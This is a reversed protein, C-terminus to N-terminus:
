DPPENMDPVIDVPVSSGSAAHAFNEASPFCALAEIRTTRSLLALMVVFWFHLVAWSATTLAISLSANSLRESPRTVNGCLKLSGGAHRQWPSSIWVQL